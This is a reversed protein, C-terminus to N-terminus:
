CCGRPNLREEIIDQVDFKTMKHHAIVKQIWEYIEIHGDKIVACTPCTETLDYLTSEYLVDEETGCVECIVKRKSIYPM